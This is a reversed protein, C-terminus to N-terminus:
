TRGGLMDDIRRNRGDSFMLDNYGYLAGDPRSAMVVCYSGLLASMLSASEHGDGFASRMFEMSNRVAEDFRRGSEEIMRDADGIGAHGNMAALAYGAASRRLPDSDAIASLFGAPDDSSLADKLLMPALAKEALDTISGAIMSIISLKEEADARVIADTDAARGCIISDIDYDRSYRVYFGYYRYFEEAVSPDRVYQSVLGRDIDMGMSLYSTMMVSLDEWGRPSVFVPGSPTREIRLLNQPKIQLYYIISGHVGSGRAYNLWVDPDPEVNILRVRDLTAIDMERASSNYEPPNGAAVLVWGDPIRHPGFKKNQLLDLMAPALTDSVCNIEDIFLIGCARGQSRIADHVSAVIESMTYRTVPVEKGDYDESEIMPLGIASQRTHHTMTYSVYGIDLESAIQRMIATKGLGPPGMVLIPRQSRLPVVPRGAPDMSTYARVASAISDKAEQINM